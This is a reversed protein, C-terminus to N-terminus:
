QGGGRPAKASFRRRVARPLSKCTPHGVPLVAAALTGEVRYMAVAHGGILIRMETAETSSFLGLAGRLFPEWSEAGSFAEEADPSRALAACVAPLRTIAEVKENLKM